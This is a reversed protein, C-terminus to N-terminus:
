ESGSWGVLVWLLDLRRMNSYARVHVVQNDTNPDDIRTVQGIPINPPFRSPFRSSIRGATYVRDGARYNDSRVIGLILDDPTGIRAPALDGTDGDLDVLNAPFRAGGSQRLSVVKATVGSQPDTILRVIASGRDARIVSGVLGDPGVVAQRERVGNATGKNIIISRYWSTSTSGISEVELPDYRDLTYSRQSGRLRSEQGARQLMGVLQGNAIQLDRARKQAAQLDKKARISDGVWNALDRFPKAANSALKQPPSTIASLGSESGFTGMFSATLLGFASLVLVAFIIRRQRYTKEDPRSM